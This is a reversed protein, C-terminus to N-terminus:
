KFMPMGKWQKHNAISRISAVRGEFLDKGVM